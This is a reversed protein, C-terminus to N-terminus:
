ILEWSQLPKTTIVTNSHSKNFINLARSINLAIVPSVARVSTHCLHSRKLKHRHKIVIIDDPTSASAKTNGRHRRGGWACSSSSSRWLFASTQASGCQEARIGPHFCASHHIQCLYVTRFKERWNHMVTATYPFPVTLFNQMYLYQLTFLQNNCLNSSNHVFILINRRRTGKM